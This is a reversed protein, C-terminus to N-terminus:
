PPDNHKIKLNDQCDKNGNDDTIFGSKICTEKGDDKGIQDPSKHHAHSRFIDDASPRDTCHKNDKGVSAVKM